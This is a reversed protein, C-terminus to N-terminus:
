LPFFLDFDQYPINMVLLFYRQFILGFAVFFSTKDEDWCLFLSVFDPLTRLFSFTDWTLWSPMASLQLCDHEDRESLCLCQIFFAVVCLLAPIQLIFQFQHFSRVQARDTCSCVNLDVPICLSATLSNTFKLLVLLSM